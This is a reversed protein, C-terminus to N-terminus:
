RVVIGRGRLADYRLDRVAPRRRLARHQRSRLPEVIAAIFGMPHRTTHRSERSAYNDSPGHRGSCSRHRCITCLKSPSRLQAFPPQHRLQRQHRTHESYTLPPPPPRRDYRPYIRQDRYSSAHDAHYPCWDRGCVFCLRHAPM